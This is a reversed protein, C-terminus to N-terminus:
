YKADPVSLVSDVGPVTPFGGFNYVNDYHNLCTGVLKDCGPTITISLGVAPTQPFPEWLTIVGSDISKIERRLDAMPGSNVTVLGYPLTQTTTISVTVTYGTADVVTTVIKRADVDIKCKSDGLQHRCRETLFTSDQRSLADKLSILDAKFKSEQWSVPGIFFRGVQLVGQSPTKWNCRYIDVRANDYRGSLLDQETIKDSSLVGDVNLNDPAAGAQNEVNTPAIASEAEYLVGDVTLDQDHVTFGLVVGDYRTVKVLWTLSSVEQAIHAKLATTMQRM